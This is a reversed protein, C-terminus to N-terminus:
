NLGVSSQLEFPSGNVISAVLALAQLKRKVAALPRGDSAAPLIGGQGHAPRQTAHVQHGTERAEGPGSREDM